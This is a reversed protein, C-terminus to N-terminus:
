EAIIVMDRGKAKAQYLGQDVRKVLTEASEGRRWNAVGISTTFEIEYNDEEIYVTYRHCAKRIKEALRAAEQQSRNPLIALFEEGGYRGVIDQSGSYERLIEAFAQLVVDGAHHGYSDNIRKFLDLDFILLSLQASDNEHLGVEQELRTTLVRRNVLGTLADRTAERYLRMLMHLQSMQIWMAIMGLLLLLWLGEVTDASILNGRVISAALFFGVIISSYFLGEILTLPAIAILAMILLPLFTYGHLIGQNGDIGSLLQSSFLYFLGPICVFALLRARALYIRNCQTGWLGLVLFMAAFMLRLSLFQHFASKSMSFYDIPIWLPALVAFGISLIRIRISIYEARSHIFDRSHVRTSIIDQPNIRQLMQRLRKRISVYSDAQYILRDGSVQEMVVTTM